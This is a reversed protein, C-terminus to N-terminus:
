NKIQSPEELAKLGNIINTFKTFMEKISDNEAMYFLEYKQMLMAVKADKVKNTGEHTVLLMNWMSKATECGSIRNFESRDLACFIVNKAKSDAIALAKEDDTWLSKPKPVLLERRLVDPMMPITYGEELVRQIFIDQCGFFVEMRIKWYPYDTGDFWPPRNVSLGLKSENDM